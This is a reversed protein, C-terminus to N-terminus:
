ANKSGKESLRKVQQAIGDYRGDIIIANGNDDRLHDSININCNENFGVTIKVGNEKVILVDGYRIYKIMYCYLIHGVCSLVFEKTMTM